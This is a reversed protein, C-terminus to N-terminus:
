RTWTLVERMWQGSSQVRVVEQSEMEAGHLFDGVAQGDVRLEPYIEMLPELVFRRQYMRPHPLTLTAENRQEDAFLLLDLDLPRPDGHSSPERGASREVGQLVALLSEADLSCALRCCANLHPPQAEAGVHATEYLSSVAELEMDGRGDLAILASRLASARDGLNAGLGVYAIDRSM